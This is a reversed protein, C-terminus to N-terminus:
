IEALRDLPDMPRLDFLHVNSRGHGDVDVLATTIATRPGKKDDISVITARFDGSTIGMIVRDGPKLSSWDSFNRSM